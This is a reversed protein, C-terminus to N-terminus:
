INSPKLTMLIAQIARIQRMMEEGLAQEEAPSLETGAVAGMSPLNLNLSETALDQAAWAGTTPTLALHACLISVLLRKTFM